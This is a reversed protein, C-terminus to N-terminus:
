DTNSCLNDHNLSQFIIMTIANDGGGYVALLSQGYLNQNWHMLVLESGPFITRKTRGHCHQYGQVAGKHQGEPISVYKLLQLLRM